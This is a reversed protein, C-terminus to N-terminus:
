LTPPVHEVRDCKMPTPSDSRRERSLRDVIEWIVAMYEDFTAVAQQLDADSANPMVRRIYEPIAPKSSDHM